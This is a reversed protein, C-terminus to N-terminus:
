KEIDVLGKILWKQAIITIFLPIIIAIIASSMILNWDTMSDAGGIMRAIGVVIPQKEPETLVLLPWLYQNWGYIFMIVFLSAINPRIFPIIISFLLSFPGTGDILAAELVEKPISKLSQRILLTGTASVMLPLVLGQYTNILNFDSLVKYTSVIRVELPMMLTSFIIWFFFNKFPLSFFEIAYASLISLTIKGVSVLIALIFSNLLLIKIPVGKVRQGSGLDWAQKYNELFKNGFTLSMKGRSITPTDYTSAVFAVYIPFMIFLVGLLLVLYAFYNERINNKFKLLKSEM